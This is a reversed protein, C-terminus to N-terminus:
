AVGLKLPVSFGRAESSGWTSMDRCLKHLSMECVKIKESELSQDNSSITYFFLHFFFSYLKKECKFIGTWFVALTKRDM